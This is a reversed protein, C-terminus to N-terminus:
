AQSPFLCFLMIYLYFRGVLDKWSHDTNLQMNDQDACGAGIVNFSVHKMAEARKSHTLAGAVILLGITLGQAWM